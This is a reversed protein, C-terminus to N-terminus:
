SICRLEDRDVKPSSLQGIYDNKLCNKVPLIGDPISLEGEEEGNGNKRPLKNKTLMSITRM